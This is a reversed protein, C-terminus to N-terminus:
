AHTLPGGTGTPDMQAPILVRSLFTGASTPVAAAAAAATTAAAAKGARSRSRTPPAPIAPAPADATGDTQSFTLAAATAASGPLIYVATAGGLVLMDYLFWERKADSHLWVTM